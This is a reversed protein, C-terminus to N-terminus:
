SAAALVRGSVLLSAAYECSSHVHGGLSIGKMPCSRPHSADVSIVFRSFVIRFGNSIRLTCSALWLSRGLTQRRSSEPRAIITDFFLRSCELKLEGFLNINKNQKQLFLSTGPM